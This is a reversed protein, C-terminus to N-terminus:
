GHMSVSQRTGGRAAVNVRESIGDVLQKASNGVTICRFKLCRKTFQAHCYFATFLVHNVAAMFSGDIDDFTGEPVAAVPIM